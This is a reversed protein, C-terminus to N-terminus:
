RKLVAGITGGIAGSLVYVGLKQLIIKLWPNGDYFIYYIVISLLFFGLGVAIGYILGRSGSLHSVYFSALLVSLGGVVLSHIMSEQVSSFFYILSLLMTLILSIVAAVLIGRIVLTIQFSKPM